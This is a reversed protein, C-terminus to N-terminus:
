NPETQESFKRPLAHNDRILNEILFSEKWNIWNIDVQWRMSNSCILLTLMAVLNFDILYVINFVLHQISAQIDPHSSASHCPFFAACIKFLWTKTLNWATSTENLLVFKGFYSIVYDHLSINVWHILWILASLYKAFQLHHVFFYM